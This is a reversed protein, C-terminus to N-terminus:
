PTTGPPPPLPSRVLHERRARSRRLWTVLTIAGALALAGLFLALAGGIAAGIAGTVSQGIAVTGGTRGDTRAVSVDYEGTAPLEMTAFARGQHPGLSYVLSGEYPSLDIPTGDAATVDIRLPPLLDEGGEDHIEPLEFYLTQGGSTLTVQETGPADVRAFADVTGGMGAVSVATWVIGAAIGAMSLIGAVWYWRTSPRIETDM